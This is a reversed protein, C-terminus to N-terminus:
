GDMDEYVQDDVADSYPHDDKSNLALVEYREKEKGAPATNTLKSQRGRTPDSRVKQSELSKIKEDAAVIVAAKMQIAATSTNKPHWIPPLSQTTAPDQTCRITWTITLPVFSEVRATCSVTELDPISVRAVSTNVVKDFTWSYLPKPNSRVDCSLTLTEGPKRYLVFQKQIRTDMYLPKKNKTKVIVDPYVHELASHTTDKCRLTVGGRDEIVPTYIDTTGVVENGRLVEYAFKSAPSGGYSQCSFTFGQGEYIKDPSNLTLKKPRDGSAKLLLFFLLLIRSQGQM